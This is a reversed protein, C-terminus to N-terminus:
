EEDGRELYDLTKKLVFETSSPLVGSITTCHTGDDPMISDKLCELMMILEERRTMENMEFVREDYYFGKIISM